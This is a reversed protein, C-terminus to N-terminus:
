LSVGLVRPPSRGEDPCVAAHVLNVMGYSKDEQKWETILGNREHRGNILRQLVAALNVDVSMSVRPVLLVNRDKM